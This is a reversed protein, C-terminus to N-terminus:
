VTNIKFGLPSKTLAVYDLVNKANNANKPQSSDILRVSREWVLSVNLSVVLSQNVRPM